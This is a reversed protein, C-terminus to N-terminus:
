PPPREVLDYFAGLEEYAVARIQLRGYGRWMVTHGPPPDHKRNMYGGMMAVLLIASALNTLEVLSYRRSYVRLMELEADTFLVDAELESVARGLLTMLMIRWATVLHLTIMNHLLSAQQMRLKEVKCGSKLIRFIDEVRWRLAYFGTMELAQELTTVEVTTLLYWKSVNQGKRRHLRESTSRRYACRTKRHTRPRRCRSGAFACKWVPM